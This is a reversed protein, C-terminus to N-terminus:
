KVFLWPYCFYDNAFKGVYKVEQLPIVSKPRDAEKGLHFFSKLGNERRNELKLLHLEVTDKSQMSGAERNRKM